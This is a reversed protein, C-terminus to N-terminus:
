QGNRIVAEVMDGVYAVIPMPDAFWEDSYQCIFKEAEESRWFVEENVRRMPIYLM